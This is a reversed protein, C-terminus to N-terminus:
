HPSILYTLFNISLPALVLSASCMATNLIMYIKVHLDFRFNEQDYKHLRLHRLRNFELQSNRADWM